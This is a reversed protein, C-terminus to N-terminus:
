WYSWAGCPTSYRGSIYSLGWAIQTAPNTQWDSGFAAMKSGPLAQPIGYAGSSNAANVRWGSERNWMQVLCNFQDDGWGRAALMQQAIAQASGPNVVVPAAPAAQAAPAAPAASKTGVKQVQNVPATVTVQSIVTRGAEVGDVYVVAYTMQAVGDKGPTVIKTTGVPLTPDNTSQVTFPVPATGAVQATTVNQIQVTLGDTVASSLDPTVKDTAGLTVGLDKLLDAVTAATTTVDSPVGAKVLKITKPTRIDISTPSLPLRKDRSVSSFDGTEYGLDNLAQAVTSDTVWVERTVGDVNLRLLRGHKLVVTSGDHVKAQPAPAVLDHAGVAYGQGSLVDRVTAAVTHIKTSQGDVQVTVTKDVSAWAVTGGLVGALVAGYLGYKISRRM